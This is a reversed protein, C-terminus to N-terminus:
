SLEVTVEVNGMSSEIGNINGIIKGEKEQNFQIIKFESFNENVPIMKTVLAPLPTSEKIMIISSSADENIRLRIEVPSCVCSEEARVDFAKGYPVPSKLLQNAFASMRFCCSRRTCCGWYKKREM